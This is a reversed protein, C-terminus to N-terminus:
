RTTSGLRISGSRAASAVVHALDDAFVDGIVERMYDCGGDRYMEDRLVHRRERENDESSNCYTRLYASLQDLKLADTRKGSPLTALADLISISM